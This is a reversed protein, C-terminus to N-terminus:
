QKEAKEPKKKGGPAEPRPGFRVSLAEMKGDDTKKYQGGVPDGVVADDLMAPKGAKTIRTTSTIQYVKKTQKTEVTITKVTKDVEALKGGFPIKDRAPAAPTEPKKDQAPASGCAGAMIAALLGAVAFKSISKTMM